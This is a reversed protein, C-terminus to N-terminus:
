QKCESRERANVMYQRRKKEREVAADGNAEAWAALAYWLAARTPKWRLYAGGSLLFTGILAIEM